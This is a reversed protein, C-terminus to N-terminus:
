FAESLMEINARVTETLAGSATSEPFNRWVLLVADSVEAAAGAVPNHVNDIILDYGGSAADAIQAATMAGPGFVAAADLGLDEALPLQMQHCLVKLDGLGKESVMKRGEEIVARYEDLRPETGAAEAILSAMAEANALDNGTNIRLDLRDPSTVSESITAMMAEYGAYCFLDADMLTTIDSPTLEYEPPHRLTSPAIVTIDDIGALDMFGAVWSTSAVAGSAFLMSCLVLVAILASLKKM